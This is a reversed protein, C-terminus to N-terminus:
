RKNHTTSSGVRVGAIAGQMRVFTVAGFDCAFIDGSVHTCASCSGNKWIELGSGARRVVYRELVTGYEGEYESVDAEEPLPEVCVKRCLLSQLMLHGASGGNVAPMGVCIRRGNKEYFYVGRRVHARLPYTGERDTLCPRGGHMELRFLGLADGLYTGTQLSEREPCYLGEQWLDGQEPLECLDDLILEPILNTSLIDGGETNLALTVALGKAPVTWISTFYPPSQGDHGALLINKYQKLRMTLGYDNGYNLYLSSEPTMMQAMSERSILPAGENLLVRALKAMDDVTSFLGGVAHRTANVPIYHLVEYGKKHPAALSFTAAECLTFTTHDMGLPRLVYERDLESFPKGMIRQVAYAVLRIGWNSYYYLRDEPAAVPELTRLGERLVAEMRDEDRPGDPTYESPLGASHSLLRRITIRDRTSNDRFQLWPVYRAIPADLDLKGEEVLRMVLIGLTIKTCSAIRFLTQTTVPDWPKEVSTVGYSNHWLLKERDTVAVALGAIQYAEMLRQIEQDWRKPNLM